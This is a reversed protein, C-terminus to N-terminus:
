NGKREAPVGPRGTFHDMSSYVKFVRGAVVDWVPQPLVNRLTGALQVTWPLQVRARGALTARWAKGVVYEPEMLPTMLPGRAGEFMGTRIYSPILTTVAIPHGAAVLELRLSDSWGIVAWKSAAYVSMRPVALTGSASAVNLIRADTAREIMAPLFARTIHMPGGTNIRLTLDIDDLHDHEWFYKGRVIGANNVLVDPVGVDNLVAGAAARISEISAVDVVYSHLSAGSSGLSVVVEDLARGDIDWLVVAAAGERAAREAYLRGMGMGAGTVLVTRGLVTFPM